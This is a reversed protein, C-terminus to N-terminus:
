RVIIEGIQHLLKSVTGDAQPSVQPEEQEPTALSRLKAQTMAVVIGLMAREQVNLTEVWNSIRLALQEQAVADGAADYNAAREQSFASSGSTEDWALSNGKAIALLDNGILERRWGSLVKLKCLMDLEEELTFPDLITHGTSTVEPTTKRKPAFTNTPMTSLEPPLLESKLNMLHSIMKVPKFHDPSLTSVKQLAALSVSALDWIEQRPVLYSASINHTNAVTQIRSALLNFLGERLRGGEKHRLRHSPSHTEATKIGQQIAALISASHLRLTIPKMGQVNSLDEKRSPLMASLGVVTENKLLYGPLMNVRRATIERWKALERAVNLEKTGADFKKTQFIGRWADEPDQPAFILPNSLTAMEELCWELRGADKLEQILHSRLAHLHRVDNLAYKIQSETFPRKSWDSLTDSKDIAEGFYTELLHKFAVMPKTQLYAAAVQTDFVKLPLRRKLEFNTALDLLIQLDSQSSHIILEKSLLLEILPQLNAILVGKVDIALMVEPSSVQLVELSPRYFPLSVFETDFGLVDHPKLYKMVEELQSLSEVFIEPRKPDVYKYKGVVPVPITEQERQEEPKFVSFPQPVPHSAAVSFSRRFLLAFRPRSFTALVAGRSFCARM